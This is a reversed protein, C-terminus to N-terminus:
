RARGDAEAGRDNWEAIAQERDPWWDGVRECDPCSVRSYLLGLPGYVIERWPKGGCPCPNLKIM